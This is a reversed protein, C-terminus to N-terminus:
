FLANGTADMLGLKFMRNQGLKLLQSEAFKLYNNTDEIWVEHQSDYFGAREIFVLTHYPVAFQFWVDEPQHGVRHISVQWSISAIPKFYHAEKISKLDLLLSSNRWNATWEKLVNENYPSKIVQREKLNFGGMVEQWRQLPFDAQSFFLAVDYSM